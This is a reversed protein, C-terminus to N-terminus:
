IHLRDSIPARQTKRQQFKISRHSFIAPRSSRVRRRRYTVYLLTVHRSIANPSTFRSTFHRLIVHFSTVDRSVNYRPTFRRSTVHRLMFHRSTVYYSVVQRSTFRSFTVHFRTVNRSVVNRSTLDRSTAHFQPVHRSTQAVHYVSSTVHCSSVSCHRCVPTDAAFAVTLLKCSISMATVIAKSKGFYFLVLYHCIASIKIVYLFVHEQFWTLFM